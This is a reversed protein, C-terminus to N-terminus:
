RSAVGKLAHLKVVPTEMPHSEHMSKVVLSSPHFLNPSGPSHSVDLSVLFIFTEETLYRHLLSIFFIEDEMWSRVREDHHIPEWVIITVQHDNRPAVTDVDLRELGLLNFFEKM